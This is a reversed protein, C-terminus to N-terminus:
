SANSAGSEVQAGLYGKEAWLAALDQYTDAWGCDPFDREMADIEGLLRAGDRKAEGGAIREILPFAREAQARVHPPLGVLHRPLKIELDM